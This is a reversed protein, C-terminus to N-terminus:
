IECEYLEERSLKGGLLKYEEYTLGFEMDVMYYEMQADFAEGVTKEFLLKALEEFSRPSKRAM